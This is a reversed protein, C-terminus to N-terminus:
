SKKKSEYAQIIGTREKETIPCNECRYEGCLDSYGGDPLILRRGCKGCYTPKFAPPNELRTFNYENTGYWVYMELEHFFDDRCQKCTQWDGKHEAAAHYGCLTFRRHNRSCINRAYSFLVYDREDGCVWNGCCWTKAVKKRTGGCLGCRPKTKKAKTPMVMNALKM